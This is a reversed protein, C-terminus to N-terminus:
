AAAQHRHYICRRRAVVQGACGPEICVRHGVPREDPDDINDWALPPPWGRGEAVKAARDSPGRTGSLAEYVEAIADHRSRYVQRRDPHISESLAQQTIGLRAAVEAGTWGIRALAQVRRRAGVAPVRRPQGRLHDLRLGKNYRNSARRCPDCAPLDNDAYHACWGAATGHRPDDPTM